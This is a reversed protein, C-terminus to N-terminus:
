FYFCDIEENKKPGIVKWQLRLSSRDFHIKGFYADEACRHSDVSTLSHKGSSALHVLFVPNDGGRRLHELSIVGATRDLTWRFVNSFSIDIGEKSQWVGKENFVLANRKEKNVIVEGNGKRNWGLKEKSKAHFILKTVNALKGWCVSLQHLENEQNATQLILDEGGFYEKKEHAPLLAYAKKVLQKLERVHPYASNLQYFRRKGESYSTILSAKELRDLAERLTTQPINLLRHLQIDYCKGNVFLFILIRQVNKNGFLSELM